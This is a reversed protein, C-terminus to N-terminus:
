PSLYLTHKGGAQWAGKAKGASSLGGWNQWPCASLGCHCSVFPCMSLSLEWPLCVSSAITTGLPTVLAAGHGAGMGCVDAGEAVFGHAWPLRRHLRHPLLVVSVAEGAAGALSAQGSLAVVLPIAAGDAIGAVLGRQLLTGLALPQDSLADHTGQAFAEVGAAEGASGAAPGDTSLAKCHILLALHIAHGVEVPFEGWHATGALAGDDRILVGVLNLAQSTAEVLAAVAALAAPRRQRRLRRLIPAVRQALLQEAFGAVDAPPVLRGASPRATIQPQAM